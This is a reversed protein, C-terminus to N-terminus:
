MVCAELLDVQTNQYALVQLARAPQEGRAGLHRQRALLAGPQHAVGRAAAGGVRWDQAAARQGGPGGPEVQGRQLLM